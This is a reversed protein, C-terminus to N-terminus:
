GRKHICPRRAHRASAALGAQGGQALCPLPAEPEKDPPEAVVDFGADGWEPLKPLPLQTADQARTLFPLPAEPENDPAEAAADFDADDWEPPEEFVPARMAM